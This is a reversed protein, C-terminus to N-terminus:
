RLVIFGVAPNGSARVAAMEQSVAANSSKEWEEVCVVATDTLLAEVTQASRNVNGGACTEVGPLRSSIEECVQSIKEEPATGIFLVPTNEPLRLRIASAAYDAADETSEWGEMGLKACVRRDLKLRKKTSVPFIGLVPLGFRKQLGAASVIKDTNFFDIILIVAMGFLGLILGVFGYEVAKKIISAKSPVNKAPESLAELEEEASTLEKANSEYDSTFALQLNALDLDLTHEIGESVVTLTHEGIVTNLLSENEQMTRQVANMLKDGREETDSIVTITILGNSVDSEVAYVTKNKYKSATHSTTLDPGGPMDILDDFPMRDIAAEYSNVLAETYNPNQFTVGPMIEYNADVYYTVTSQYIDYPDMLLMISNEKYYDLKGMWAQLNELKTEYTLKDREYKEMSARYDEEAKEMTDPDRYAYYEKVFGLIGLLAGCLLMVAAISRWHRLVSWFMDGLRLETEDNVGYSNEKM